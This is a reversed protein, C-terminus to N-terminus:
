YFKKVAVSETDCTNSFFLIDAFPVVINLATTLAVAAEAAPPFAALPAPLDVWRAKTEKSGIGIAIVIAIM